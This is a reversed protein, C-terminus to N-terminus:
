TNLLLFDSTRPDRLVRMIHYQEEERFAHSAPWTNIIVSQFERIMTLAQTFGRRMIRCM